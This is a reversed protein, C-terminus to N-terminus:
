AKRRKETDKRAGIRCETWRLCGEVICVLPCGHRNKGARAYERHRDLRHGCGRCRAAKEKGQDAMQRLCWRAVYRELPDTATQAQQRLGAVSIDVTYPLARRRRPTM